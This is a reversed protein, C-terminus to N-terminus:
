KSGNRGKMSNKRLEEAHADVHKAFAYSLVAWIHDPSISLPLHQAFATLSAALFGSGGSFVTTNPANSM